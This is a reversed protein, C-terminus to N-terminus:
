EYRLRWTGVLFFLTGIAVLAFFASRIDAASGGSMLRTFGEMAWGNVTLKSVGRMWSPMATLPIMSGGVAGMGQIMLQAIVSAARTTKAVAAIFASVGTSAFVTALVLAVLGAPSRGWDVGYIVRTAVVLVSFQVIGVFYTGLLKGGLVSARGVPASFLRALTQGDREHILSFAGFMASFLVFLVAMGASYYQFSSLSRRQRVEADKVAIQSRYDAGSMGEILDSVPNQPNVSGGAPDAVGPLAGVGQLEIVATKVGVQVASIRTAIARVVGRLIGSGLEQGPDALVRLETSRGDEIAESFDKPIVLAAALDGRAIGTRAREEGMMTVNFLDEFRDSSLADVIRSAIEGRDHDVIAVDIRSFSTRGSFTGGLALGLITIIVLPMAILTLLASRDRTTVRVDKTAITLFKSM